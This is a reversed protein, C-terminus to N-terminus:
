NNFFEVFDVDDYYREGKFNKFNFLTATRGRERKIKVVYPKEPAGEYDTVVLKKYPLAEFRAVIDEREWPLGSTVIRIDNYNVRSAREVWKSIAKKYSHYHVCYIKIDGLKLVPYHHFGRFTRVPTLSLYYELNEMMKLFDMFPIYLNVTPSNFRVGLDSCIVGGMCAPSFLSFEKNTLRKRMAENYPVRHKGGIIRRTLYIPHQM